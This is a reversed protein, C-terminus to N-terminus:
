TERLELACLSPLIRLSQIELCGPPWYKNQLDLMRGSSSLVLRWHCFSALLTWFKVSPMQSDLDVVLGLSASQNAHERLIRSPPNQFSALSSSNSTESTGSLILDNFATSLELSLRNRHSEGRGPVELSRDNLTLTIFDFVVFLSARNLSM